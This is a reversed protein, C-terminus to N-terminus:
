KHLSVLTLTRTFFDVFVMRQKVCHNLAFLTLIAEDEFRNKMKIKKVPNVLTTRRASFGINSIAIIFEISLVIGITMRIRLARCCRTIQTFLGHCLPLSNKENANHRKKWLEWWVWLFLSKRIAVFGKAWSRCWCSYAVNQILQSFRSLEPTSCIFHANMTICIKNRFLHPMSKMEVNAEHWRVRLLFDWCKIQNTKSIDGAYCSKLFNLLKNRVLNLSLLKESHSSFPSFM